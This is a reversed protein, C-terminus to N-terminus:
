TIDNFFLFGVLGVSDADVGSLEDGFGFFFFVAGFFDAALVGGFGAASFGVLSGATVAVFGPASVFGAAAFFVAAALDAAGRVARGAALGRVARPDFADGGSAECGAGGGDAASGTAGRPSRSGPKLMRM